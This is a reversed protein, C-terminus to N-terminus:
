EHSPSAMGFVTRVKRRPIEQIESGCDVVGLEVV